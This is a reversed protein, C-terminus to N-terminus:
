RPAVTLMRDHEAVWDALHEPRMAPSFLYGQVADCGIERLEALQDITEVGEAVTPLGLQHALENIMSILIRNEADPLGQIFSGDIKLEDVPLVRLHAISTYGTGFDDIVVRMGLLRLQALQSAALDLDTVLATETVEISLRDAAIEVGALLATTQPVFVPDLLTRGSVNVSVAVDCLEPVAQWRTMQGLAETMVWHDLAVILGSREAVPVFDDPSVLGHGPRDWRVLAEVSRLGGTVADIVPMYMLRLENADPRLALALAADVDDHLALRRDLEDDYRAVSGSGLQKARYVALDAKRLLQLPEGHLGTDPDPMSLAVGASAGVGLTLTAVSVPQAAARVMRHAIDVPEDWDTVGPLALVFEDGGLRAFLGHAPAVSEMRRGVIRLLEDGVAHGHRDNIRKFDDLDIFVVAVTTGESGMEDHMRRLSEMFVSRNGLGTLSDHTAEFSLRAQLQQRQEISESLVQVSRQLSAGLMGPLPRRLSPHDFDCNALAHAKQELLVLNETMDNFAQSARVIEPPGRLPLPELDLRGGGVREAHDTFRRVPGAVSRAFLLAAVLSVFLAMVAVAVTRHQMSRAQAAIRLSDANVADAALPPMASVGVLWDIGDILALGVSVPQGAPRDASSLLGDGADAIVSRISVPLRTRDNWLGLFATGVSSPESVAMASRNYLAVASAVESQLRLRGAPEAAWLDTLAAILVGAHAPVEITQEFTTASRILAADGLGVALDRVVALQRTSLATIREDLDDLLQQITAAAVQGAGVAVRIDTLADVDFPRLAVPLAGLAQNTRRPFAEPEDLLEAGFKTTRLLDEPPRREPSAIEAALREDFLASRLSVLKRLVTVRESVESGRDSEGHRQLAANSM